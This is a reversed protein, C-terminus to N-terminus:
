LIIFETRSRYRNNYSYDGFNYVSIEKKLKRKYANMGQLVRKLKMEGMAKNFFENSQQLYLTYLFQENTTNDSNALVDEIINRKVMAVLYKKLWGEETDPILLFGDDDEEYGNYVMFISGKEFNTYLTRKNISIEYPSDKVAFNLCGKDCSTKKVFPTLKLKIPQANNYYLNAKTGNHLYLKEVICTEEEKLECPDCLAWEANKIERVKYFYINQLIDEGEPCDTTYGFPECKLASYISKFGDPLKTKNNKVDLVTEIRITPLMSFQNLADLVWNYVTLDNILGASDYQKLSEKIEALFEDFTIM